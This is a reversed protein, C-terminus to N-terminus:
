SDPFYLHVDVATDARDIEREAKQARGGCLFGATAGGRPLCLGLRSGGALLWRSGPARGGAAPPLMPTECM